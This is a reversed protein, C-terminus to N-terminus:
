KADKAPDGAFWVKFIPVLTEQTIHFPLEDEKANEKREILVKRAQWLGGDNQQLDELLASNDADSCGYLATEEIPPLTGTFPECIVGDALEIRWPHPKVDTKDPEPLPETLKIAFEDDPVGCVITQGDAATLCPDYISNEVMCRWASPSYYAAISSTWCNGEVTKEPVTPVYQIIETTGPTAAAQAAYPSCCLMIVIAIIRKPMTTNTGSFLRAAQGIHRRESEECFM